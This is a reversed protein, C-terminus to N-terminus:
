ASQEIARSLGISVSLTECVFLIQKFTKRVFLQRLTSSSPLLTL